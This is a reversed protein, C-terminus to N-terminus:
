LRWSNLMFVIIFFKPLTWPRGHRRATIQLLHKLVMCIGLAITQSLTSSEFCCAYHRCLHSDYSRGVVFQHDFSHWHVDTEGLEEVYDCYQEFSHWHLARIRIQTMNRIQIMVCAHHVCRHICVIEEQAGGSMCVYPVCAYRVCLSMHLFCLITETGWDQLQKSVPFM